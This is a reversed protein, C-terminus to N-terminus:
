DIIQILELREGTKPKVELILGVGPAYYKNELADPAIPTFDGTKLCNAFTGFPVSVTENLSLIKAADEANAPSFKEGGGRAGSSFVWACVM